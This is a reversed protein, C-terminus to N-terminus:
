KGDEDAPFTGGRRVYERMLERLRSQELMRVREELYSIRKGQLLNAAVLSVVTLLYVIGQVIDATM